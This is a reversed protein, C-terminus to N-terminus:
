QPEMVPSAPADTSPGEIGLQGRDNAGWCYVARADAEAADVFLACAHAGGVAIAVLREDLAVARMGAGSGDEPGDGLQGNADSGWCAARQAATIGCAHAGTSGIESLTAGAIDFPESAPAGGPAFPEADGWCRLLGEGDLACSYGAAVTIEQAEIGPVLHSTASTEGGGLQAAANSGWCAVGDPTSACGHDSAVAIAIAGGLELAEPPHPAKGADGPAAGWCAVDGGADIVCTSDGGAALRASVVPAGEPCTTVVRPAGIASVECGGAQLSTSAGWCVIRGSELRACAHAAGCAVSTVPDDDIEPPMGVSLPSSRFGGDSDGLQGSTDDGWCAVGGNVAACTFADGACLIGAHDGVEVIAGGGGGGADAGGTQTQGGGGAAVDPIDLLCGSCVAALLSSTPVWALKWDLMTRADAMTVRPPCM